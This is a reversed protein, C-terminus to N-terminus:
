ENGIMELYPAPVRGFGIGAYPNVPVRAADLGLIERYDSAPNKRRALLELINDGRSGLLPALENRFRESRANLLRKGGWRGLTTMLDGGSAMADNALEQSFELLPKTRSGRNAVADTAFMQTEQEVLKEFARYDEADGFAAKLIKRINPRRFYAIVDGGDPKNGAQEIIAQFLGSRFGQKEAESMANIRDVKVMKNGRFATVGEEFADQVSKNDSYIKQAIRFAPNQEKLGDIITNANRRMAAATQKSGSREAEDAMERLARGVYHLRQINMGPQDFAVLEREALENARRLAVQGDASDLVRRMSDTVRTPMERAKKYFPAAKAILSKQHDRLLTEFGQDAEGGLKALFFPEVRDLQDVTRQRLQDSLEEGGAGPSTVVDAARNRLNTGLDAAMMAPNEKLAKQAEEPTFGAAKLDKVFRKAASTSRSNVIGRYMRGLGKAVKPAYHAFGAGFGAGIATNGLDGALTDAESYGYGATAGEAAGIAWPAIKAGGTKLLGSVGQTLGTGAETLGYTWPNDERAERNKTRETDRFGQYDETIDAITEKALAEKAARIGAQIEDGFGLTAGQSFGRVASELMSTEPRNGESLKSDIAGLLDGDGSSSLRSEILELLESDEM